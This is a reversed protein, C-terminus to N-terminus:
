LEGPKVDTVRDQAYIEIDRAQQTITEAYEELGQQMQAILRDKIALHETLGKIREEHARQLEEVLLYYQELLAGRVVVGGQPSPTDAYLLGAAVGRDIVQRAEGAISYGSKASQDRLAEFTSQTFSVTIRHTPGPRDGRRKIKM